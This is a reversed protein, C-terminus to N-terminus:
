HFAKKTAAWPDMSQTAVCEFAAASTWPALSQSRFFKIMNITHRHCWSSDPDRGLLQKERTEHQNYTLSSSKIKGEYHVITRQLWKIGIFSVKTLTFIKFSSFSSVEWDRNHGVTRLDDMGFKDDEDNSSESSTSSSSSSSSSSDSPGLDVAVCDRLKEPLEIQDGDEPHWVHQPSISRPLDLLEMTEEESHDEWSRRYLQRQRLGSHSPSVIRQYPREDILRQEPEVRNVDEDDDDPLAPPPSALVTDM